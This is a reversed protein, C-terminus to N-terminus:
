VLKLVLFFAVDEDRQDNRADISKCEGQNQYESIPHLVFPDQCLSVDDFTLAEVLAAVHLPHYDFSDNSQLSRVDEQVLKFISLVVIVVVHLIGIWQVM